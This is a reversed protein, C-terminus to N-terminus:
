VEYDTLYKKTNEIMEAFLAKADSVSCTVLPDNIFCNFIKDLDREAIAESINEQQACVRSVLPYISAPVEGAFVPTISNARFVANTEVIAGIPLNPIQGMNPINVNTCIENLGLLSQM